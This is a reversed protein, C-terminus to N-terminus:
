RRQAETRSPRLLQGAAVLATLGGIWPADPSGGGSIVIATAVFAATALVLAISPRRWDTTAFVGASLACLM